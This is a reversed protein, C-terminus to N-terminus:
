TGNNWILNHKLNIDDKVEQQHMQYAINNDFGKDNSKDSM